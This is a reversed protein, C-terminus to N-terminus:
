QLPLLPTAKRTLSPVFNLVVTIPASSGEVAMEPPVVFLFQEAKGDISFDLSGPGRSRMPFLEVPTSARFSGGTVAYEVSMMAGPTRYIIHRGDASWHPNRGGATSVPFRRSDPPYPQVYIELRPLSDGEGYAIWKDDPSFVAANQASTSGPFVQVPTRTGTLPLMWLRADRFSGQGFLLRQGDSSFGSPVLPHESRFLEEDSTAGGGASRRYLGYGGNRVSAFVVSSGDRSWVPNREDVENVTFRTFIGRELELLRLSRIPAAEEVVAHRGDPSLRATAYNGEKGIQRLAKGSRDVLVVRRRSRDAIATGAVYALAGSESVSFAARGNTANYRVDELVPFPEGSPRGADADFPQAMLTGDRQYFIYGGAYDVSSNINALFTRGPSGLSALFLGTKSPDGGRTAFLYRRGDPLFAPSDIASEARAADLEMAVEPQGGTESVRFLKGGQGRFLIVGARGWAIRGSAAPAITRPAGGALDIVKLPREGVVGGVFAISRGDPSWVPQWAGATRELRLADLSGMTRVWLQSSEGQGTAFVVRTGDPSVALLGPGLSMTQGEPADITFTIPAPPRVPRRYSRYGVVALALLAVAAVSMWLRERAPSGPRAAPAGAQEPVARVREDAIWQLEAALDSASQWRDDPDKALCKALLRDLARRAVILLSTKTDALTTLLPADGGVIAAIVGAQSPADFARRGSLMEYLLAGFAHIDSRTDVERGELQEPSMYYLTGLIGGQGTLPSLRTAGDGFIASEAGDAALKALGFDLLKTGTKTVMVNGPKLDRHVIGRRHAADLAQAIEVAYKVATDFPIPGRSVSSRTADGSPPQHPDSSPGGSRALRDALTEGELYQMVLFSVADGSGGAPAERCVDYLMCIHPHDLASIARAEREFREHIEPAAAISSHIVKLAVIRDLRTDRAKYVEGMGGAGIAGLVEYPGLRTGSTLPM